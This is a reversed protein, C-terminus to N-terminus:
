ADGGLQTGVGLRVAAAVIADAFVVDAVGVGLHTVVIPGSRGAQPAIGARAGMFAEGITADPDPYGRFDGSERTKLFQGREDVIFAEADSAVSAPVCMDYDVAIVLRTRAFADQPIGQRDPGFSVLTLAVDARSVAETSDTVTEVSRFAASARAEQAVAEARDAHRDGIVLATGRLLHAIVPLHSRAQVGAGILAVTLTAPEAAPKWTQIAVGSVAATRHATIPGADLIARVQGTVPDNLLVSGFIAPLGEAHNHPFGTVWKVGLLDGSGDVPTGRVFAPMAHAFSDEPRPHVGLKAPMEADAVLALM